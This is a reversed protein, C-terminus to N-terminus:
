RLRGVGPVFRGVAAAYRVYEEGHIRRLHPEEVRRVLLHNAVVVLALGVLGVVTPVMLTLGLCTVLVASLIPNRVLAFPGTTVLATRERPDVGARWSDGMALQAAFTAVAGVVVLALGGPAWWRGRVVPDLGLLAAVPSAVGLALAGVAAIADIWRQVPNRRAAARRDGTDGTRRVHMWVRVGSVLGLFAFFLLLATIAM